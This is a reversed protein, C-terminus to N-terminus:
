LYNGWKYIKGIFMQQTVTAYGASIEFPFLKKPWVLNVETIGNCQSLKNLLKSKLVTQILSLLGMGNHYSLCVKQFCMKTRSGLYHIQKTLIHSPELRSVSHLSLPLTKSYFIVCLMQHGSNFPVSFTIISALALHLEQQTRARKHVKYESSQM